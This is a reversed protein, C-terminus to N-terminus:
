KTKSLFQRGNSQFSDRVVKVAKVGQVIKRCSSGIEYYSSVTSYLNNKLQLTREALVLTYSLIICDNINSGSTCNM